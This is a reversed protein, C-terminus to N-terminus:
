LFRFTYGMNSNKTEKDPKPDGHPDLISMAEIDENSIYALSQLDIDM